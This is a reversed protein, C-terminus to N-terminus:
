QGGGANGARNSGAGSGSQHENANRQAGNSYEQFRKTLYGPNGASGQNSAESGSSRGGVWGQGGNHRASYQKMRETLSNGQGEHSAGDRVQQHERHNEMGNQAWVAPATGLLLVSAIAVLKTKDIM